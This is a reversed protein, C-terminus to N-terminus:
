PSRPRWSRPSRRRTSASPPRSAAVQARRRLHAAAGHVGLIVLGYRLEDPWSGGFLLAVVAVAARRGRGRDIVSFTSGTDAVAAASAYDRKGRHLRSRAAPPAMAGLPAIQLYTWFCQMLAWYGAGVPGLLGKQLLGALFIFVQALYTASPSSPADATASRLAETPSPRSAACSTPRRRPPTPTHRWGHGAVAALGGGSGGPAAPRWFTARSASGRVQGAAPPSPTLAMGQARWAGEIAGTLALLGVM